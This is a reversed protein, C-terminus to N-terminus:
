WRICYYHVTWNCLIFLLPSSSSSVRSKKHLRSHKENRDADELIILLFSWESSETQCLLYQLNSIEPTSNYGTTSTASHFNCLMKNFFHCMGSWYCVFLGWTQVLTVELCPTVLTVWCIVRFWLTLPFSYRCVRDINYRYRSYSCYYSCHHDFFIFSFWTCPSSIYKMEDGSILSYKAVSRQWCRSNCLCVPEFAYISDNCSCIRYGLLPGNAVALGTVAGKSIVKRWIQM